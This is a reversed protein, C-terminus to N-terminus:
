SVRLQDTPLGALELLARYDEPTDCDRFSRLEPDVTAIEAQSVTRVGSERALVRPRLEGRALLAEAAPLISKAYVATTPVYYDEVFPIAASHGHSLRLLHSVLAPELLPSDCSIVFAREASMAGVGAIVGALPGLGEAPDRAIPPSWGPLSPLSQGERAVLWVEDVRSSVIRVIRELLTEAGFRLAAKDSGM